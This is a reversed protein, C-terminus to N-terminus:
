ETLANVRVAEAELAALQDDVEDIREQISSISEASPAIRANEAIADVELNYKTYMLGKKHSNIVQLREEKTLM